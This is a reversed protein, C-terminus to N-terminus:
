AASRFGSLESSLAHKLKNELEALANKQAEIDAQMADFSTIKDELSDTAVHIRQISQMRNKLQTKHERIQAELPAMVVKQWAEVDRNAQLFSQKVRAAISDFFKRMLVGQGTTLLTLTSFQKQFVAEIASIELLYKDLSFAMPATLALGHETSFKRYMITMMESIEDTKKNSTLLNLKIQAFFQRVADKLGASFKSHEMADRAKSIEARLIDMGLSTYVETSLKTFVARTGQMKILSGDFEKKEVDVRKMMHEIVHNNKGRLSKLEMMQEVVNRSRAALVARQGSTIDHIDTTLQTRIIDQKSPILEKSLAYELAPLRSRALLPADKHIKAVLGKQASVPFVQKEELALIHAVTTIQHQIQREIEEPSRLEDWMSDIKNLVVMRGPGGGIHNRWVDIDSKTVGTDAALIFLVAHANPILNLTLEPETGIANLGPTDIIILGEKLLPHPFNVIAHRWQSIEVLGNEDVELGADPDTEDYLGYSKATDISVKKTQSVQKFAELMGDGSSVNLPLVTWVHHQGKYDSTSQAESRTEIPLLRICPPITEDYLLETPCMTTRGASSPLIRQGYDAFFIANILESKGRSFEAVFAITLKDDVLRELLRALRQDTAADALESGGVWARYQELARLVGKRWDSYEQFKQVLNSM